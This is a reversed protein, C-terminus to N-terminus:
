ILLNLFKVPHLGCAMLVQWAGEYHMSPLFPYKRSGHIAKEIKLLIHSPM